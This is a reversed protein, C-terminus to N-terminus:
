APRRAARACAHSAFEEALQVEFNRKMEDLSEGVPPGSPSFRWACDSCGWGKFNQGEVRVLKRPSNGESRFM